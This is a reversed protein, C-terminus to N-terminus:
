TRGLAEYMSVILELYSPTKLRECQDDTAFVDMSASTM